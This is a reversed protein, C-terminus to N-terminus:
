AVLVQICHLLTELHLPLVSVAFDHFNNMGLFMCWCTVTSNRKDCKLDCFPALALVGPADCDACDCDLYNM